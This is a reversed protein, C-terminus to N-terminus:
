LVPIDSLLSIALHLQFGKTRPAGIAAPLGPLGEFWNGVFLRRISSGDRSTQPSAATADMNRLYFFVQRHHDWYLLLEPGRRHSALRLRHSKSTHRAAPLFRHSQRTSFCM